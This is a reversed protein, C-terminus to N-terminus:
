AAPQAHSSSRQFFAPTHLSELSDGLTVAVATVISRTGSQVHAAHAEPMGERCHPKTDTQPWLRMRSKQARKRSRRFRIGTTGSQPPAPAPVAREDFNFKGKQM